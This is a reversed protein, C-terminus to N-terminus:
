SGDGLGFLHRVAYLLPHPHETPPDSAATRLAARPHHLFQNQLRHMTHSIAERDTDSLNPCRAFLAEMERLRVTDAYDGLQRLIAGAHKKHRLAALCATTEREIIALAPDVKKQRRARNAETQAQLDDVHYLMVQELDGIKPDFDRPIAIDLILAL